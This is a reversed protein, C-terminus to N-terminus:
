SKMCPKIKADMEKFGTMVTMHSRAQDNTDYFRERVDPVTAALTPNAGKLDKQTTDWDVESWVERSDEWWQVNSYEPKLAPNYGVKNSKVFQSGLKSRAEKLAHPGHDGARAINVQDLAKRFEKFMWENQPTKKTNAATQVLDGLEEIFALYDNNTGKMIRYPSYNMVRGAGVGQVYSYYNVAAKENDFSLANQNDGPVLRANGDAGYGMGIMLQNFNCRGGPGNQCAFETWQGNCRSNGADWDYCRWGLRRAAKDNLGDIQYAYYLMVREMAGQYGGAIASTAFYVCTLLLSVRM